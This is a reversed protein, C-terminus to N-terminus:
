ANSNSQSIYELVCKTKAGLNAVAGYKCTSCDFNHLSRVQSGLTMDCDSGVIDLSSDVMQLLSAELEIHIGNLLVCLALHNSYVQLALEASESYMQYLLLKGDSNKLYKM